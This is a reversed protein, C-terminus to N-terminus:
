RLYVVTQFFCATDFTIFVQQTECQACAESGSDNDVSIQQHAIISGSTVDPTEAILFIVGIDHFFAHTDTSYLTHEPLKGPVGM